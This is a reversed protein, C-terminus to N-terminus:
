DGNVRRALCGPITCLRYTWGHCGQGSLQLTIDTSYSLGPCLAPSASSLTQENQRPQPTPFPELLICLLKGPPLANTVVFVELCKM